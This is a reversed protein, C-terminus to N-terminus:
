SWTGGRRGCPRATLRTRPTSTSRTSTRTNSPRTRRSGSRATPRAVSGSPTIACGRIIPLPRCPWTWPSRWDGAARGRSPVGRFAELGGLEPAVAEHGGDPSGIAWPSGVDGPRAVAANNPGKRNTTGIPHIPPLYVVDFGLRALAPLRWTAERLTTAQGPTKGQSRPFLEYWAGTAAQRRDVVLELERDYRTAHSRDPHRAGAELLAPERAIRAADRDSGARALRTRAARFVAADARNGAARAREAARALLLRAEAMETEISQRARAKRSLRDSWSAVEDRWAEVTYRHRTNRTLRVRGSWRDYRGPRM